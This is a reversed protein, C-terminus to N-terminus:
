NSINAADTTNGPDVLLLGMGALIISIFLIIFSLKGTRTLLARDNRFCLATALAPLAMTMETAVDSPFGKFDVMNNLLSVVFDPEIESFRRTSAIVVATLFGPVATGVFLIIVGISLVRRATPDAPPLPNSRQDATDNAQTMAKTSRRLM